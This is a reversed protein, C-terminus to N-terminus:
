AGRGGVEGWPSAQTTVQGAGVTEECMGNAYRWGRMAVGTHMALVAHASHGVMAL